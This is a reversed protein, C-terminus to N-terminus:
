NIYKGPTAIIVNAGNEEIELSNKLIDTGGVTMQLTIKPNLKFFKVAVDYTQKALERTPSIM